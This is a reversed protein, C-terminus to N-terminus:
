LCKITLFINKLNLNDINSNRNFSKIKFKKSLHIKINKGFFGDSGLILIKKKM